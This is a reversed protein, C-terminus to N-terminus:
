MMMGTTSLDPPSVSRCTWRCTRTDKDTPSTAYAVGVSWLWNRDFRYQSGLVFHWTDDYELDQTFRISTASQLTLDQKSFESWDQWGINGVIAL